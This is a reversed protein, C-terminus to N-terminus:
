KSKQVVVGYGESMCRDLAARWEEPGGNMESQHNGNCHRFRAPSWKRKAIGPHARMWRLREEMLECWTDPSVEDVDQRIVQLVCEGYEKKDNATWHKERYDVEEPSQAASLCLTILLFVGVFFAQLAFPVLTTTRRRGYRFQYRFELLGHQFMTKIFKSGKRV